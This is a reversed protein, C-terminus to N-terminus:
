MLLPDKMLLVQHFPKTSHQSHLSTSRESCSQVAYGAIPTSGVTAVVLDLVDDAHSALQVPRVEISCRNEDEMDLGRADSWTFLMLVDLLVENGPVELLFMANAVLARRQSQRAAGFLM